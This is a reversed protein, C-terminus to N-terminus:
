SLIPVLHILFDSIEAGLWTGVLVLGGNKNWKYTITIISFTIIPTVFGLWHSLSLIQSQIPNMETLALTPDRLTDITNFACFINLIFATVLVIYFLKDVNRM